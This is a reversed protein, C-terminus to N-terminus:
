YSTDCKGDVFKNKIKDALDGRSVAQSRLAGEITPWIRPPNGSGRLWEALMDRFCNGPDDRQVIAISDLSGRSMKLEDGLDKWKTRADWLENKIM